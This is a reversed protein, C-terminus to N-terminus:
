AERKFSKARAILRQMEQEDTFADYNLATEQICRRICESRTVGLKGALGDLVELLESSVQATVPKTASVNGICMTFPKGQRLPNLRNMDPKYTEIHKAELAHLDERSGEFVEFSIALANGDAMMGRAKEHTGIRAKLNSSCGVYRVRDNTVLHYVGPAAPITRRNAYSVTLM